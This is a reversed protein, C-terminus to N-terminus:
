ASAGTRMAYLVQGTSCLRGDDNVIDIAVTSLQRGRKIVRAKAELWQGHAQRLYTISLDATGAPESGPLAKSFVAAVAAMDVMTALVGGNVSGGIGTPTTETVTLRLCAYDDAIEAISLGIFRHFPNEDFRQFFAESDGAPMIDNKVTIRKSSSLRQLGFTVREVFAIGIGNPRHCKFLSM